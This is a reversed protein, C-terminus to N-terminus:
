RGTIGALTVARKCRLDGRHPAVHERLAREPNVRMQSTGAQYPLDARSKRRTWLAVTGTNQFCLSFVKYRATNRSTSPCKASTILKIVSKPSRSWALVTEPLQESAPLGPPPPTSWILPDVRRLGEIMFWAGRHSALDDRVLGVARRQRVQTILRGDPTPSSGRCPRSASM